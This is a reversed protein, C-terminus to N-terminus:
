ADYIEFKLLMSELTLGPGFAFSLVQEDNDTGSANKFVENLVFLVTPSSMNGFNKLVTYAHRNQEETIGLEQQIAELIKKGGPHIAFHRIGKSNNKARALLLNTLDRIGGRIIDPVYTSLKMEFGLDGISWAMDHKGEPALDSHFAEIRLSKRAPAAEVLLAASGDAFLANALLNDDTPQRQFHLSCLETCVILVKAKQDAKCFADAVKLGNFAAYCGMFTISTRQITSPLALEQVLEIDLGPAYMGTCCVVILHTIEETRFASSPVSGQLNRVAALSIGLAHERFALLRKETSPFPELNPTNPYFSFSDEKGYDDLVTHRYNIGSARFITHLKRSDAANLNMSKEMFRAITSQSFRHPPNATGIATIYSMGKKQLSKM